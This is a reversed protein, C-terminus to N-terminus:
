PQQAVARSHGTGQKIAESQTGSAVLYLTATGALNQNLVRDATRVACRAQVLRDHQQQHPYPRVGMVSVGVLLTALLVVAKRWRLSIRGVKGLWTEAAARPLQERGLRALKEQWSPRYV